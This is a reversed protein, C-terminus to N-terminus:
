KKKSVGYFREPEEEKGTEIVEQLEKALKSHLRKLSELDAQALDKHGMFLHLAGRYMYAEAMKPKLELARNYHRLSETFNQEGQKRLVYALNNHAEANKEDVALAAEFKVQAAAWQKKLLLACGDNYDSADVASPRETDPKPSSASGFVVSPAALLIFLLCKNM